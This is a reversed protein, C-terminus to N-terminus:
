LFGNARGERIMANFRLHDNIEEKGKFLEAEEQNWRSVEAGEKGAWAACYNEYLGHVLGAV